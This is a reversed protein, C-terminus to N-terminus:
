NQRLYKSPHISKFEAEWVANEYLMLLDNRNEKWQAKVSTCTFNVM